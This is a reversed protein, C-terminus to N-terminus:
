FPQCYEIPSQHPHDGNVWQPWTVCIHMLLNPWWQSLYHSPMQKIRLWWSFWQQSITLQVVPFLNWCFKFWSVVNKMFCICKCITMQLNAAMKDKRVITCCTTITFLMYVFYIAHGICLKAGILAKYMFSKYVAKLGTLSRSSLWDVTWLFTWSSKVFCFCFCWVKIMVKWRVWQVSFCDWRLLLWQKYYYDM